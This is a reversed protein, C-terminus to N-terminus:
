RAFRGEGRDLMLAETLSMKNENNKNATDVPRAVPLGLSALDRTPLQLHGARFLREMVPSMKPPSMKPIIKPIPNQAKMPAEQQVQPGDEDVEDLPFYRAAASRTTAM